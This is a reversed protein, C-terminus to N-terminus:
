IEGGVVDVDPPFRVLETGEKEDMAHVVVDHTIDMADRQGIEEFVLFGKDKGRVLLGKYAVELVYAEFVGLAHRDEDRMDELVADLVKGVRDQRGENIVAVADHEVVDCADHVRGFGVRSGDDRAGDFEDLIVVARQAFHGEDVRECLRQADGRLAPEVRHSITQCSAM